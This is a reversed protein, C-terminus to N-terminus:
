RYCELRYVIQQYELPSLLFYESLTRSVDDAIQGLLYQYHVALREITESQYLSTAYNINGRLTGQNDNIFLSIDFKATQYYENMALPNLLSKMAESQGFSQVVFMVQFLPHRSPDPEIKLAEVLKEFPLDQHVQADVLDQHVQEILHEVTDDSQLLVRIALSNVFFGILSELQEYHRNAIPTGIVLDEQGTYKSLLLYFGSLLVTYLTVGKSQALKRLKQSIEESIEFFYDKGRYDFFAPRVYDTSLALPEYGSLKNEWYSVQQELRKGSLHTRQWVAFDKYQITLPALTIQAGEAEHLYYQKLEKMFIDLSWGDFAIHHISLVLIKRTSGKLTYIWVKLPYEKTLDFLTNFAEKLKEPLLGETIREEMIFLLGEEVQQYDLGEEDQKFVTRLVEHRTVIRHLGKKLAEVEISSELEYAFPMHYANTGEEYQEIFWLREQTFSLPATKKELPLIIIQQKPNVIVRKLGAITKYKFIDSVAILRGILQSMQHSVQIALISHGGLRFFDDKIGVKELGLALQWITCLESELENRPGIYSVEEALFDPEPLAKRDLKGNITLLFSALPVFANPIMYEPLRETLYSRLTDDTLVDHSLYYAVLYKNIGAETQTEKVLVVSQKILAHSSLAQEIEGLEIRYGRIKVQFDNRGVYELTGKPM